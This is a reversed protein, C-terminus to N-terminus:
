QSLEQQMDARFRLTDTLHEIANRWPSGDALKDLLTPVTQM